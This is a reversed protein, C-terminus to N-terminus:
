LQNNGNAEGVKKLLNLYGEKLTKGKGAIDPNDTYYIMYENEYIRVELKELEDLMDIRTISKVVQNYMNKKIAEQEKPTLDINMRKM